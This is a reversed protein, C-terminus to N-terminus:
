RFVSARAHTRTHNKKPHLAGTLSSSSVFRCKAIELAPTREDHQSFFRFANRSGVSMVDRAGHRVGARGGGLTGHIDRGCM